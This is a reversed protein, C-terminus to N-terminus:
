EGITFVVGNEDPTLTIEIEVGRYPLVIVYYSGTLRYKEERVFMPEDILDGTRKKIVGMGIIELAELPGVKYRHIVQNILVDSTNRTLLYGRVRLRGKELYINSDKVKNNLQNVFTNNDRILKARAAYPLVCATYWKKFDPHSRDKIADIIHTPRKGNFQLGVTQQRSSFVQVKVNNSNSKRFIANLEDADKGNDVLIVVYSVDNM